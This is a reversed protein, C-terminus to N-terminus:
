EAGVFVCESVADYVDHMLWVALAHALGGFIPEATLTITHEDSLIRLRPRSAQSSTM